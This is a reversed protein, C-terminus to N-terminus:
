GTVWDQDKEMALPALAKLVLTRIGDPSVEEPDLDDFDDEEWRQAFTLLTAERQPLKEVVFDLIPEVTAAWASELSEPGDQV